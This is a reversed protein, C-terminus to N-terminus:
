KKMKNKGYMLSSKFSADLLESISSKNGGYINKLSNGECNCYKVVVVKVFNSYLLNPPKVLPSVNRSNNHPRTSILLDVFVSFILHQHAPLPPNNFSPISSLIKRYKKMSWGKAGM